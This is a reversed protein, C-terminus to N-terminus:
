RDKKGGGFTHKINIGPGAHSGGVGISTSEGVKLRNVARM